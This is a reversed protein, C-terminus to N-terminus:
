HAFKLWAVVAFSTSTLSCAVFAMQSANLIDIGTIHEISAGNAHSVVKNSVPDVGSYMLTAGLLCSFCSGLLGALMGLILHYKYCASADMTPLEHAASLSLFACFAIGIFGGGLASAITGLTTIGGSVGPMVSRWTTILRPKAFRVSALETSFGHGACCAVYSLFAVDAIRCNVCNSNAFNDHILVAKCTAILAPGLGKVLIRCFDLPPYPHNSGGLFLKRRWIFIILSSKLVYFTLVAGFYQLGSSLLLVGCIFSLVAAAFTFKRTKFGHFSILASPLCVSIAQISASSSDSIIAVTAAVRNYWADISTLWLMAFFATSFLASLVVVSKM